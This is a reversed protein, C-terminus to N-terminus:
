QLLSLRVSVLEIMDGQRVENLMEETREYFSFWRISELWTVCITWSIRGLWPKMVVITEGVWEIVRRGFVGICTVFYRVAMWITRWVGRRVRVTECRITWRIARIRIRVRVREIKTGLMREIMSCGHSIAFFHVRWHHRFSSRVCVFFWWLRFDKGIM